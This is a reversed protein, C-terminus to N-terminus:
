RWRDGAATAYTGWEFRWPTVAIVRTPSAVM